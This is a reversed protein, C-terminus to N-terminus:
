RRIPRRAALRVLPHCPSHPRESPTLTPKSGSNGRGPQQLAGTLQSCNRDVFPGTFLLITRASQTKSSKRSPADNRKSLITHAGQKTRSREYDDANSSSSEEGKGKAVSGNMVKAQKENGRNHYAGSESSNGRANSACQKGAEDEVPKEVGARM